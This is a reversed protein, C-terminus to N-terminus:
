KMMSKMFLETKRTLGELGVVQTTEQSYKQSELELGTIFRWKACCPLFRKKKATDSGNAKWWELDKLANPTYAIEM